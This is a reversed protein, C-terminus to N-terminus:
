IRTDRAKIFHQLENLTEIRTRSGALFNDLVQELFQDLAGHDRTSLMEAMPAEKHKQRISDPQHGGSEIQAAAPRQSGQGM